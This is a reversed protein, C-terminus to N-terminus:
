CCDISATPVYMLSAPTPSPQHVVFKQEQRLHIPTPPPLQIIVTPFFCSYQAMKMKWKAGYNRLRSYQAATYRNALFFPFGNGRIYWHYEVNKPVYLEFYQGTQLIVVFFLLLALTLTITFVVSFSFLESYKM